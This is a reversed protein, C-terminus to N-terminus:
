KLVPTVMLPHGHHIVDGVPEHSHRGRFEHFRLSGSSPVVKLVLCFAGVVITGLIRKIWM